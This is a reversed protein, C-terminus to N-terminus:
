MHLVAMIFGVIIQLIKVFIERTDKEKKSDQNEFSEYNFMEKGKM